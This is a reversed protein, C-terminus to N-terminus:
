GILRGERIYRAADDHSTGQVQHQRQQDLQKTYLTDRAKERGNNGARHDDDDAERQRRRSKIIDQGAGGSYGIHKPHSPDDSDGHDSRHNDYGDKAFSKELKNGDDEANGHAIEGVVSTM